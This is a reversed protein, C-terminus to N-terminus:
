AVSTRFGRGPAPKPLPPVRFGRLVRERVFRDQRRGELFHLHNRILTLHQRADDLQKWERVDVAAQALIRDPQDSGVLVKMCSMFAYIELLGGADLKLDSEVLSVSDAARMAKLYDAMEFLFPMQNKFLNARSRQVLDHFAASDGAVRRAGLLGFSFPFCNQARQLCEKITLVSVRVESPLSQLVGLLKELASGSEVKLPSKVLLLLDVPSHPALDLRGYEGLAIWVANRLGVALPTQEPGSGKQFLDWVAVILKDLLVGRGVATASGPAGNWHRWKLRQMELAYARRCSATLSGDEIRLSDVETLLASVGQLSVKPNMATECVLFLTAQSIEQHELRSPRLSGCSTLLWKLLCLRERPWQTEKERLGNQGVLCTAPRCGEDSGVKPAEVDLFESADSGDGQIEDNSAWRRSSAYGFLRFESPRTMLWEDSSSRRERLSRGDRRPLERTPRHM